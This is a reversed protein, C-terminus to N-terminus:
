SPKRRSPKKGSGASSSVDGKDAPMGPGTGGSNDAAPDKLRSLRTKADEIMQRVREAREPSLTEWLPEGKQSPSGEISDGADSFLDRVAGPPSLMKDMEQLGPTSGALSVQPDAPVDRRFNIHMTEQAATEEGPKEDQPPTEPAPAEPVVLPWERYDVLSPIRELAGLPEIGMAKLRNLLDQFVAEKQLSWTSAFCRWFTWGARELVRQRAMDAQWREPGHFEDGDLEIALRADGEGEVVMDIRYAGSKVQPIVRYGLEYLRTYVEREFGSECMEVLSQGEPAQGDMPKAFHELLGRRLDVASLEGHKVSRVLYMRDRARSAAVNFRQEHMLQSVAHCNNRDVVMSLFMIDRESGQFLRADGCEFQRALLEKGDCKDRVMRDILNAQEIGLLSVVGLTRGAMKPNALIDIIEQVIFRAELLNTEKASRVGDKIYVDVLPPDLRESATPIRLPQISGDYFRNSYAIIPPVCRFHERLMVKHAAFVTAALDYLSKEPTLTEKFPQDSLFRERLEAVHVASVFGPGPSVQKDDGVVLIKQGRLIPLLGWIDSQSAEDVIVLHFAGLTAPLTESVKAQSMIWCPVAGQAQLMARQADRRHRTANPGTGQGIRSVAARYTELASLVAPNSGLKTNLWATQSVIDEYFRALSRELERRRGALGQLEVRSEISELHLRVRAWNWADRWSNPWAEDDGQAGAPQTRVRLALKVAGAERLRDSFRQVQAIAQGLSEVRKLETLLEVYESVAQEVPLDPRGLDKNMFSKLRLSIAGSTGALKDQLVALDTTARSLEAKTLHARLHDLVEQMQESTGRVESMPPKFFVKQALEPLQADFALALRHAKMALTTVAEISRLASISPKVQPVSLTSAFQNWRVSFSLVKTHLEVHRIVHAWDDPTQPEVGSVRIAAVHAKAAGQGVALLGFPKGSQAARELAKRVDASALAEEPMEVPRKLFDARAKVLKEVEDGLAELAERESAFSAQLCKRRLEDTWVEGTAELEQALAQAMQLREQLRMAEKLVEESSSRLQLLGGQAESQELQRIDMLTRHLRELQAPTLLGASSPTKADVYSLDEGLRRRAERLAAAEEASLPPAHEPRLDIEDDFWGHREQGELALEAMRQARMAVGDVVIDSLQTRAIEDVRADVKELDAHAREISAQLHQISERVQDEKLQSLNAQIAEISSRFQQLGERDGSLLAVTLPRVAEPIKSQLVQLAQEGKSTVLVKKGQALYHCIINAITHTKGTGPPGQVAVGNARELQEIITVQERNYPLPFYLERIQSPVAGATGTIGSVGSSGPSGSFHASYGSRGRYRVSSFAVPKDSPPTVLAAPGEPIAPAKEVSAKLRQIDDLLYNTARPRNFLVWSNTVVLHEAPEPFGTKEADLRGQNELMGALLKLLPETTSIDFPNPPLKNADQSTKALAAMVAKEAEAAGPVKCAAIADFELRPDVPRPRIEMALTDKHMSIEVAQSLMPYQYPVTVDGEKTSLFKLNWAAVGMGWVVEQPRATEEAELQHKLAFLDGYLAITKRRPREGDAWVKWQAAYESLQRAARERWSRENSTLAIVLPHEQYEQGQTSLLGAEQLEAIQAKIAKNEQAVQFALGAENLRPASGSPDESVTIINKWTAVPAPLAPPKTAELRLVRLWLHDGESKLDFDVGPLGAMSAASKLFGDHRKLTFARPDVEKNTELVYDLLKTMLAATM